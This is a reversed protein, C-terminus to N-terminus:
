RGRYLGVGKFPLIKDLKQYLNEIVKVGKGFPFVAYTTIQFDIATETYSPSTIMATASFSRTEFIIEHRENDVHRLIANLDSALKKVAEMAEVNRCRYYRSRLTTIEHNESTEFNNSFYDKFRM